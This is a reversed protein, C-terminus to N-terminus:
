CEKIHQHVGCSFCEAVGENIVRLEARKCQRCQQSIWDEYGPAPEEWDRRNLWTTAHPVFDRKQYYRVWSPTNNVLAERQGPSLGAWIESAKSKGGVRLKGLSKWWDNFDTAYFIARRPM